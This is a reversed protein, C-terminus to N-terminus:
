VSSPNLEELRADIVRLQRVTADVEDAIAKLRNLTIENSIAAIKSEFVKWHVKFLDRLEDESMLNPNSAIEAADEADDLLRVPTLMGNKFFDLTESSARESNIIRENTSITLKQGKRVIEEVLEGRRDFKLVGITGNIASKWIEVEPM